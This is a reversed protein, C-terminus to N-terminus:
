GLKRWREFFLKLRYFLQQHYDQRLQSRAL